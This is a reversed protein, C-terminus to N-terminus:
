DDLKQGCHKCYKSDAANHVMCQACQKENRIDSLQRKKEIIQDALQNISLRECDMMELIQKGIRSYRLQLEAEMLLLEKELGDKEKSHKVETTM